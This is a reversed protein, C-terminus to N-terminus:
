PRKEIEFEMTKEPTRIRGELREGRLIPVEGGEWELDKHRSFDIFTHEEEAEEMVSEIEDVIFKVAEDTKQKENM